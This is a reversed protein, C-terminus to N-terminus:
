FLWKTFREKGLEVTESNEYIERFEEKYEHAKRLRTSQCLLKNLEELQESNLNEQNRLLLSKKDFGKIGVQSAIKNLEKILPKMVHFRDTVIKARPFVEQIVKAFGGWMDVSVEEVAERIEIPQEM